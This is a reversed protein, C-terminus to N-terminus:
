GREFELVARLLGVVTEAREHPSDIGELPEREAAGSERVLAELRAGTRADVDEVLAHLVGLWELRVPDQLADLIATARELWVSRDHEEDLVPTRLVDWALLHAGMAGPDASPEGDLELALAREIFRRAAADDGDGLRRLAKQLLNDAALTVAREQDFGITNSSQRLVGLANRREAEFRAEMRTLREETSMRSRAM